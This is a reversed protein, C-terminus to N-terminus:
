RLLVVKRTQSFEGAQLRVFYTGSALKSGDIKVTYTGPNQHFNVLTNVDRGNIDYLKLSVDSSKSISYSITTSSNFPNPFNSNLTFSQPINSDTRDIAGLTSSFDYIGVGFYEGVYALDGNGAIYYTPGNTVRYYGVESSQSTGSIRWIRVGSDAATVYAYDGRVVFDHLRVSSFQTGINVPHTPSTINVFQTQLGNYTAAFVTGNSVNMSAVLGISPCNGVPVIQSPNNVDYVGLGDWEDRTYLYRGNLVIQHCPQPLTVSTLQVPHAPNSVNLSSILDYRLVFLTNNSHVLDTISGNSGFLYNGVRSISDPHESRLIVLDHGDNETTYILNGSKQIPFVFGPYQLAITGRQVPRSPRSVDIIRLGYFGDALYVLNNSYALHYAYGYVSYSGVETPQQRNSVDIVRLGYNYDAIYAYNGSVGVGWAWGPTDCKGVRLTDTLNDIRFISMGSDIHSVYAYNGALAIGTGTDFINYCHRLTPHLPNSYDLVSLSRSHGTTYLRNGVAVIDWVWGTSSDISLISTNLPNSIDVLMIGMTMGGGFFAFRGSITVRSYNGGIDLSNAIYPHQSNEINVIQIGSYWTPIFAFNGSVAIEFPYGPLQLESLVIPIMPDSIDFITLGAAPSTLYARNGVIYLDSAGHSGFSNILRPHTPDSVSFIQPGTFADVVYATTGVVKVKSARSQYFSGLHSVGLSDHAFTITALLMLLSYTFVISTSRNM